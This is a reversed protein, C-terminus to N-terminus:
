NDVCGQIFVVFFCLLGDFYLDCIHRYNPAIISPYFTYLTCFTGQLSENLPQVHFLQCDACVKNKLVRESRCNSPVSCGIRKVNYKKHLAM